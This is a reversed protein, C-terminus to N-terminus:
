AEILGCQVLFHYVGDNEVSDAVYDAVQKVKDQANGMAVGVGVHTLMEIDNLGDGFAMVNEMSLGLHTAAIEIGRAKSGQGDFVDVSNPHWRVVSLGELIASQAILADQEQAYFPLVQYVDHQKFYTKDVSYDTTIVDFTERLMPTRESVFVRENTVFAYAIQHQDLFEVITAIRAKPLPFKALTQGQYVVSQGNMTVFLEVGAQAIAHDLKKPFTARARGSAIAVIIGNARLKKFLEVVKESLHDKDKMFLTEDIDFFVMKIQQRLNPVNM